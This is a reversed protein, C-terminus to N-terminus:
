KKYFKVKLNIASLFCKLLAIDAKARVNYHFSMFFNDM